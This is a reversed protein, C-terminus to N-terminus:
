ERSKRFDCPNIFIVFLIKEHNKTKPIDRPNKDGFDHNKKHSPISRCAIEAVLYRPGPRYGDIKRFKINSFFLSRGFYDVKKRHCWDWGNKFERKSKEAFHLCTKSCSYFDKKDSVVNHLYNYIFETIQQHIFKLPRSNSKHILSSCKLIESSGDWLDQYIKKNWFLALSSNLSSQFYFLFPAIKM